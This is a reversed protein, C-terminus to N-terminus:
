AKNPGAELVDELTRLGTRPAQVLVSMNGPKHQNNLMKSHADPLEAWPMVESMCPDLRRECMLRNAAAAQKLHAFHSGQLRKQHMWMYRVDFTCNFGTTGACIVVMGGKKCVLTSVAFTSEGPHEFVMDVNVSIGTIDWIAKGFRRAEKLWTNYEPTNVKPMQGWCDFENRNIVGKAGLSLVYDRKSEDSIVAIANAGATNILQIAYVGLGGSAGWVLVNQGPKLEHPHHGFLMRYATALTLTYCASEEWTLHKPRPMLQQAQVRTFQAFSGDPTEYGWIRQTPSFMPDGGNCEEDDGDDQNCHIVVEDGVKWSKVKDGVAWVIGAADSGAIHYPAGHGDFPSIPQGLGAWVGNYNVGAAMVLVLVEQSDVSPTEVVELQFAKDPTGHREKRIAWAHMKPPVYGMPPMDGMDYLDKEPAEYYLPTQNSDLAM